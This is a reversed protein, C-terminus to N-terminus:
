PSLLFRIGPELVWYFAQSEAHSELEIELIHHNKKHLASLITQLPYLFFRRYGRVASHFAGTMGTKPATVHIHIDKELSLSFRGPMDSLELAQIDYHDTNETQGPKIQERRPVFPAKKTMLSLTEPSCPFGWQRSKRIKWERLIVGRARLSISRAKIDFRIYSKEGRALALEAELTRAEAFPNSNQPFAEGPILGLFLFLFLSKSWM